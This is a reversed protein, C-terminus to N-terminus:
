AAVGPVRQHEYQDGFLCPRDLPEQPRTRDLHTTMLYEALVAELKRYAIQQPSSGDLVTPELPLSQGYELAARLSISVRDRDWTVSLEDIM